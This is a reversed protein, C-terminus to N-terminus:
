NGEPESTIIIGSERDYTLPKNFYNNLFRRDAFFDDCATTTNFEPGVKTTHAYRITIEYRLQRGCLGWWRREGVEIPEKLYLTITYYAFEARVEFHTADKLIESSFQTM